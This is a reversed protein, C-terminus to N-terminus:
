WTTVPWVKACITSLDEKKGGKREISETALM